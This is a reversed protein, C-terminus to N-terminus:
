VILSRDVFSKLSCKGLDNVYTKGHVTVNQKDTGAVNGDWHQYYTTAKYGTGGCEGYLFVNFDMVTPFFLDFVYKYIGNPLNSKFSITLEVSSVDSTLSVGNTDQVTQDKHHVTFNSVNGSAMLLRHPFLGKVTQSFSGIGVLGATELSHKNVLATPPASADIGISHAGSDFKVATNFGYVSVDVDSTNTTGDSFKCKKDDVYKKTAADTNNTPTGLNTVTHGGMGINDSMVFGADTLYTRDGYRKTAPENDRQPDPLGIIKNSNMNITGQMTFGTNSLGSGSGADGKDGKPGQPGTDGKDGKPGQTGTM